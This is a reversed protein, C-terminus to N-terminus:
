NRFLADAEEKLVFVHGQQEGTLDLQDADTVHIFVDELIAGEFDIHEAKSVRLDVNKLTANKFSCEELTADKFIVNELRAGEFKGKRLSIGEFTTNEITSGEFDLQYAQSRSFNGGYLHCEKFNTWEIDCKEAFLAIFACNKFQVKSLKSNKINHHGWNEKELQMGALDSEVFCHFMPGPRKKNSDTKIEKLFDEKKKSTRDMAFIMNVNEYTQGMVIRYPVTLSFGHQSAWEDFRDFAAALEHDKQMFCEIFYECLDNRLDYATVAGMFVSLEEDIEHISKAFPEFLYSVDVYSVTRKEDTYWSHDYGTVAISPKEEYLASRLINFQLIRIPYTKDLQDIGAYLDQVLKEKSAAFKEDFAQKLGQKAAEMKEQVIGLAKKREM